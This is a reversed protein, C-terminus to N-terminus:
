LVLPVKVSEKGICDKWKFECMLPLHDSPFVASPLADAGIATESPLPWRRCPVLNNQVNYWIYDITRKVEGEKGRIKWTTYMPEAQAGGNEVFDCLEMVELENVRHPPDCVCILSYVSAFNEHLISYTNSFPDANLDGCLISAVLSGQAVDELRQIIQRTELVRLKENYHGRKAKLHTNVLVFDQDADIDRFRCTLGGQNLKKGKPDEYQITDSKLLQLRSSKYFIACGDAPSEFKQAASCPKQWYEGVYGHRKLEPLFFDDFHNLEQLCIVHPDDKLIRGLLLPARHNWELFKKEVRDFDGSQALGDALVNWQMVRLGELMKEPEDALLRSNETLGMCDGVLNDIVSESREEVASGM